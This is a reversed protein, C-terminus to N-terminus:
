FQPIKPNSMKVCDWRCIDVHRPDESLKELKM